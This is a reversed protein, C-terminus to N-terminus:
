WEVGFSRQAVELLKEPDDIVDVPRKGHLYTTPSMLWQILGTETRGYEEGLKRLDAIVPRLGSETFQFGPFLTYRGRTLALARGESRAKAALNRSTNSRSGMAEGAQASSLLRFEEEISDYLNERAQAAAALAPSAPAQASRIAEGLARATHRTYVAEAAIELATDQSSENLVEFVARSHEELHRTLIDVVAPSPSYRELFRFDKPVDHHAVEVDVSSALREDHVAAAAATLALLERAAREEHETEHHRRAPSM